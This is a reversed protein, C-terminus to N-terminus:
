LPLQHYRMLDFRITIEFVKFNLATDLCAWREERKPHKDEEVRPFMLLPDFFCFMKTGTENESVWQVETGNAAEAVQFFLWVHTIFVVTM